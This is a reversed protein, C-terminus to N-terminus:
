VRGGEEHAPCSSRVPCTRCGDNRVAAFTNGAMGTAVTRVLREAWEPDHDDGLAPQEQVRVKAAYAATGVQVLEAGGPELLGYREFASRLVALQYVGLQPHRALEDNAPRSSGTKIDVVVARGAGDRELRDVRGTIEIGGIDVRFGEETVVLERDNGEHWDILKRVMAEARVREKEAYWPGGFDLETWIEDMRREIDPLEAGEAVLVALAHVISGIASALEASRAGVAVELLWRLQCSGFKEVQSPSVRIRGDEAVLPEDTSYPTLAYWEDPDAGRVGEDALRALHAAAARRLPDPRDPDTVVSRLDAVLAPLSLWRRGTAVREPEGLGLEGIFRSPREETDEGGVATVVLTRRARTVAVYFLRREEDLLRSAVAAGTSEAFGAVTDVLHEVGLLSGRLRLDPWEGEQVGAVVVLDWELGKSRHATLIRVAEGKPAQEALTDAPIEQAELDDLFGEPVGPPLRDCYRAASEFLAVVSDLDRDAAAGRRGGAQSARLLRDALGGAQWVEWLVEEASAGAAARDRVLALLRAVREAPARVEPAIVALDRPDRLVAAILEASPRRGGTDLELQRLARGLRRLLVTDADGFPSTLLEHAAADDLTEPRLACRLLALLPRVLPEAALPLEDGGVVVPVGAAALARRLVPIQRTASRVLVAMRSWPVGDLLHARRLTDAVVAAEQTSSEAVLARVEGAPADPLPSLVRHANVGGGSPAAPLRQALRRSAELLAPGSRRCVRLAVVPAPAGGASPFRTPFDLIGRVDAGRFGYISQDPDGVVVLDRGGGALARLLAEQAPDTDQYEDVFVVERAARERAQIGPDTLLNAAIRVLEAYNLTPVPAVDFRGTYRDLFGGAAAWDDRGLERGLAALAGSDLGREEARMLFDRLEEAFGRTELAPRLREPWARAGDASEGALLERIEMLQEPGSLLRPPLDGSRQFERRILAYAYSHFTLALPERTTRRLRATIRERLEQAAKRSFTLVLVRSPDVGRREIRDVVAEVVTTTKGTGPGALVLMPGGEHAVVRRQNEDLEPAPAARRVRRVLRYPSSSM